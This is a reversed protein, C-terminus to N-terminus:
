TSRERDLVSLTMDSRTSVARLTRRRARIDTTQAHIRGDRFYARLDTEADFVAGLGSRRVTVAVNGSIHSTLVYAGAALAEQTSFSFTEPASAWHLVIDVQQETLARIMADPDEATVQVPFVEVNDLGIQSTGFYVFRHRIDHSNNDLVIREFM